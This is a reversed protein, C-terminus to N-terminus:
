SNAYKNKLYYDVCSEGFIKTYENLVVNRGDDNTHWLERSKNQDQIEASARIINIPQSPFKMWETYSRLMTFPSSVIILSEPFRKEKDFMDLTRKVNDALTISETETQVAEAPVGLEIARRCM